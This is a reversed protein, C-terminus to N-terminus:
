AAANNQQASKKREQYLTIVASKSVCFNSLFEMYISKITIFSSYLLWENANVSPAAHVSCPINHFKLIM